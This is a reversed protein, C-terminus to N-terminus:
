YRKKDFLETEFSYEPTTFVGLEKEPKLDRPKERELLKQCELQEETTLPNIFEENTFPIILRPKQELYNVIRYVWDMREGSRYYRVDVYENKGQKTKSRLIRPGQIIRNGQWDRTYTYEDEKVPSPREVVHHPGYWLKVGGAVLATLVLLTLLSYRPRLSM